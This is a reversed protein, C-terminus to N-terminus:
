VCVYVCVWVCVCVCVFLCVCVYVCVCVCMFCLSAVCVKVVKQRRAPARPQAAAAVNACPGVSPAGDELEELGDPM